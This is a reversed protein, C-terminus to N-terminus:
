IIRGPTVPVGIQDLQQEIEKLDKDYLSKLKNELPSIKTKVIQLQQQQSQTPGNTSGSSARLVFRIRRMITPPEVAVRSSRVPSGSISTIIGVVEKELGSVKEDLSGTEARTNFLAQKIAKVRDYLTNASQLTSLVEAYVKGAELNFAEFDKPNTAPLTTNKLKVVRFPVPGAIRTKVGRVVKEMTVSYTGPAVFAGGRAFRGSSRSVPADSAYRLDWTVRNIGKTPNSKIRRVIAGNDNRITFILYPAVEEDEARLEKQSPYHITKGAKMDASEAKKRQQRLTPWTQKLYYTFTAAVRPNRSRYYLAGQGYYNGNEVFSLADKITFLHAEKKLIEPTLERLPTYDDLIYFGRGFTALVLDNERRQITLDKVAITPIGSRLQTWHKGADASFFVGFETGAFLLDSNLHDERIAYVTGNEPLNGSISIWTKGKDTSKLIYPKFDSNKRGDFTAFVTNADHMSPLLCTVFTMEPVGPFHDYRTWTKGDNETVQILGDDTGAYLLGQQLPSEELTFINGFPSTSVSKAIADPGWIKGMVPLTNVDIQRTLDPSIVEWTSGRDTSKFIKNAACYVTTAAHPSVEIPTNWNFRYTEDEVPQPKIYLAEGSKKDFRVIGGYQSEAYSIDPNGPEPVSMFGDGGNTKIWDANVIYQFRTRSPGTWSGNDQAGGYLNYFPWADDVRVHYFQTVPLNSRFIWTTGRDFSEYLGGDCGEILHRTDTPDIWLAHNDVHKNTEGLPHWTKGGDESIMARTDMSFVRDPKYPDVYVEQYYQPSTTIMNSQKKWSEGRDNSRYFGGKNNPLEIIAYLIDPNSTAIALGIRGVNGSPLGSKLKRWTKGADESKYIASEPGGDIKTYVRRRRQHAAAYLVDPNRPDMVVDSVGTNESITLMAKWTKGGDTTKYLGRDGGPGWVPGQAAVYVVSTNHPDIVIKGIHESKKLGMNKWSKGGDTSKYIGDGYALNRQSNNEGTGAWVVFPNEPDIALAGISYVPQHDFVPKFTTGANTTKWLGGSAVGVYFEKHNKPNVAIDAIRGSAVGPGLSRFRLGGVLSANVKFGPEAPTKPKKNAGTVAGTCAIVLVAFTILARFISKQLM